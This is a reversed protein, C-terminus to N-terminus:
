TVVHTVVVFLKACRFCNEAFPDRQFLISLLMKGSVSILFGRLFRINEDPGQLKLLIIFRVISQNQRIYLSSITQVTTTVHSHVSSHATIQSDEADHMIM